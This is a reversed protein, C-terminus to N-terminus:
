NGGLWEPSVPRSGCDLALDNSFQPMAMDDDCAAFPTDPPMGAESISNLQVDDFSDDAGGRQSSEEFFFSNDAATAPADDYGGDDGCVNGEPVPASAPGMAPVSSLFGPVYCAAKRSVKGTRVTQTKGRLVNLLGRLHPAPGGKLCEEGSRGRADRVLQPKERRVARHRSSKLQPPFLAATDLNEVDGKNRSKRASRGRCGMGGDSAASFKVSKQASAATHATGSRRVVEVKLAHGARLGDGASRLQAEARAGGTWRLM